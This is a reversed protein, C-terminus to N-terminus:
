PDSVLDGVEADDASHIENGKFVHARASGSDILLRARSGSVSAYRQGPPSSVTERAFRVTVFFRVCVSKLM